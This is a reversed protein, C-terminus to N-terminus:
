RRVKFRRRITPAEIEVRGGMLLLSVYKQFDQVSMKDTPNQPPSTMLQVLRTQTDVRDTDLWGQLAVLLEDLPMAACLADKASRALDQLTKLECSLHACALLMKQLAASLTQGQKQNGEIVRRIVANILSVEYPKLNCSIHSLLMEGAASKKIIGDAMIHLMKRVGSVDAEFAQGWIEFDARWGDLKLDAVMVWQWEHNARILDQDTLPGNRRKVPAKHRAYLIQRAQWVEEIEVGVKLAQRLGVLVKAVKDKEFGLPIQSKLVLWADKKNNQIDLLGKKLAGEDLYSTAQGILKPPTFGICEVGCQPPIDVDLLAYCGVLSLITEHSIKLRPIRSGSIVVDDAHLDLSLGLRSSCADHIKLQVVHSKYGIGSISALSACANIEIVDFYGQVDFQTLRHCSRIDISSPNPSNLILRELSRFGNFLISDVRDPVQLQLTVKKTPKTVVWLGVGKIGPSKDNLLEDLSGILAYSWPLNNPRTKEFREAQWAADIHAIGGFIRLVPAQKGTDLHLYSRADEPLLVETLKPCNRVSLHIENQTSARLDISELAPCDRVDLARLDPKVLVAHSLPTNKLECGKDWGLPLSVATFGNSNMKVLIDGKSM